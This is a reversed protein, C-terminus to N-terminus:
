PEPTGLAEPLTLTFLAGGQSRNAASIQGGLLETLHKVIALGLGTGGPHRARSRDVRYFREFVRLLDAEPIGPGSDKVHLKLGENTRRAEIGVSGGAPSHNVANEVLNKVIDHLKRPDTTLERADDDIAVAVHVNQRDIAPQLERLVGDVITRIATRTPELTEQRADLRALRLLDGVLREMRGAHREIVELFERSQTDEVEDLLAEVYGRIATLPTRLEHSVNAVFDRRIQDAKRVDTIEHLVLVADGGPLRAPAARAVFHRSADIGLALELAQAPEGRLAVNMLSVVDPHRIVETHRRGIAADAIGLMRRAADNALVVRGQTDVVLVGEVMGALIAETRARDSALERLRRGVEQVAGDLTRAVTGLEDGGYDVRPGALDGSEYRRAVAAIASVRRSLPRSFAWALVLAAPVATAISLLAVPLVLRLQEQVAALPMALRVYAVRPHRTSTAVYVMDTGVTTSFRRARGYGVRRADLIEPRHAHEEASALGDPPLASDGLLTGEASVFTVRAGVLTGIRDAEADLDVDETASRELLDATLRTELRLREEIRHNLERRLSWSTLGTTVVAILVGVAAAAVFMKTGFRSKM